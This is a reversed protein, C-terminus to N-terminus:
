NQGWRVELKKYEILEIDFLLISASQLPYHIVIINEDKYVIDELISGDWKSKHRFLYWGEELENVDIM